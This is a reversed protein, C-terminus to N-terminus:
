GIGKGIQRAKPPATGDGPKTEVRFGLCTLAQQLEFCEFELISM